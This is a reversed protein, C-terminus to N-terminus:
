YERFVKRIKNRDKKKIFNDNRGEHGVNANKKEKRQAIIKEFEKKEDFNMLKYLAYCQGVILGTKELLELDEELININNKEIFDKPWFEYRNLYLSLLNKEDYEIDDRNSVLYRSIFRRCSVALTEKTILKFIKNEFISLIDKSQKEDIPMKYEKRLNKIIPNDDEEDEKKDNNKKFNFFCLLELYIYVEMLEEFKITLRPEQFFERCEKSLNVYGPLDNIITKIEETEIQREKILYYILLQISFLIKQLEDNNENLKDKIIDYILKKKDESLEKQSYKNIFDSLISSKNGRFGEFCYTVYRLNEVGNFKVKGPLLLEGLTKEISDFDYVYQKYNMYNISNDERLINRRSNEYIIETFIDNVEDFDLTDNKKANQVDIKKEMNKVYHHLIGSQKLSEILKDLFINQWEIFNQYAAALYMGNCLEGNDVLFHTLTSNDDLDLVPMEERCGFKIEYSKLEEWDGLFNELKEKFNEDKYLEEDKIKKESAYKRTVQYSYYDIMYNCFNNFEPLYKILFKERNKDNIYEAVLPYNKEFLNARKTEDIFSKKSPYTTMLFYKYFPYDKEDYNNVDNNELVLAKMSERDLKLAEENIENYKKSYAEYEKYTEELLKEIEEEFKERQELSEIKKCSNLKETLKKFILNMFIQIIQIGKSQLAEKLLTWDTEIMQICTMEDCIYKKIDDNSIYDLCNAYFLHSYLIFNLLRFGVISLKRVTHNFQKFIAKKPKNIGFKSQRLIPEIIKNKYENILMNKINESSDYAGFQEERVKEDKFIRYHGERQVFGHRGKMGEPLPAYGIEKKCFLCNSKQLPFGCPEIAYYTGCSCVYAGVNPPQTNIHKEILAYGTIFRNNLINNGPICNANIIKDIDKSIIGSYLSDGSNKCNTTQLCFRLSYLLIEFTNTNFDQINEEKKIKTEMIDNFSDKSSYLLFLKRTIEPIKLTPQFISKAFSSYKTYEPSDGVYNKLALNSIILNTSIIYFSDLGDKEVLEKFEKINREFNSRRYADFKEFDELFKQYIKEDGYPIMYYSLMAIKEEEFRKELDKFFKIGHNDYNYNKFTQFDNNLIYFFIKFVYIKIMQRVKSNRSNGEIVKIIPDIDGILQNNLKNDIFHVLKFLYMKIYAICYFQCLLENGIKEEKKNDYKSNYIVELLNACQRFIDLSKDFLILTENVKGNNEEYNFYMPFASKDDENSLNPISEFYKNFLNEFTSLIIDHVIENKSDNILKLSYNESNQLNELNNEIKSVSPKVVGKIIISIFPYSHAILKPNQLITEVLAYRYNDYSQKKIEAVFLDLILEIFNDTDGLNEYLFDYLSKINKSLEDLKEADNSYEIQKKLIEIVKLINEPNSKNANNLRKEIDLIQQITFIGKSYINLEETLNLGDKCITKLINIFDYFQQGEKKYLNSDNIIITFLSELIFYFPKLYVQSHEPCKKGDIDFKIVGKNLLKEIEEFLNSEFSSLARYISLLSAINQSYSEIWILKMIFSKFPDFKDEENLSEYRLIVMKKLVKNYEEINKYSDKIDNVIKSLFILYYDNLLLENFENFEKKHEKSLDNLEKFIPNKGIEIETCKQYNRLENEYEQRKIPFDIDDQKLYFKIRRETEFFNDQIEEHIYHRFSKILPYIGPLKLGLLISLKNENKNKKINTKSIDLKGLYLEILKKVIENGLYYNYNDNEKLNNEDNRNDLNMEEEVEIIQNKIIKANLCSQNYIFTSLFNDNETKFILKALGDTFLTSLHRQIVSIIGVDNKKFDIKKLIEEFIDLKGLNQKLICNIIQLRLEENRELFTILKNAYNSTNIGKVSILFNYDFYSMADYFNKIFETDLKLCKKLLNEPNLDIIDILSFDEGNLHDICIQYFDSLHSISEGLTNKEIFNGKLEDKLDENFIRNMHVTFIFSKKSNEELYNKEKLYNEIFFKIYNMIDTEDPNFKIVIIKTKNERDLYISELQVELDNESNLSSIQIEKINTRDIEGFMETKFKDSINGLLPEDISTFTYIVNKLNKMSKIFNYLNSHEGRKYFEIIKNYINIYKEKFGSYKMILIIDQTLTLSLKELIIDQIDQVKLFKKKDLNQYEIDKIYIMGQIEEKDCNILQRKLDYKISLKNEKIDSRGLEQIISYINETEQLLEKRLLIEFSIIHKEFRNLFPPEEEEIMNKDVIVICKFGDHVLSFTNNTSGMAIRSYKKGSVITFNQNFLDYLSPYVSELDNLLLIKDQEMQLQIKNLIKLGYSESLQDKRFGSGIYFSLEKKLDKKMEESTLISNILYNSVSSKSILLLFRSDNDKINERIKEIVNYNGETDCNPYKEKFLTKIIKLSSKGDDFELGSFNREISNIGISEKVHEDIQNDQESLTKSLLQKMAIKILHYFDRSGHYEQKASYDKKLIKKYEYYLNALAEFLDSNTQALHPNYSEAIIQSTKNLDELDPQPISLFLGRNMKSADLCWNSIGVFAIKKNGENLDYELEAHIVKLPNNPSNEALGMEDFYIMSIIKDKNEDNLILRAKKFINLVGKSTSVKSGQYSNIYLQPLSKFLTNNSATGTMSKYLLQVSLSKSCGPKGVIFLPIKSNVCVFLTFINNLLAKNKAIGKEMEINDAIYKQERNPINEFDFDDYNNNQFVKSMIKSFEERNEKKTLRMYYCLYLSINISYLYIDMDTLDKYYTDVANYKENQNVKSDLDKKKFLYEVFFNYFIGFRRIERLSVSSVDKKVKRVYQQGEIITDSALKKLNECKEFENKPLYDGINLKDLKENQHKKEIEKWFYSEIPSVVMNRIYSKEDEATIDGFNFVFNLLSFPLPNVTYVLKSNQKKENKEDLVELANQEEDTKDAYRYPNCAGIFFINNPLPKGQCSKKTMMECILGMSNCTNIEDLFVWFKKKFYILGREEYEKRNSEEKEELIKAKAIISSDKIEVNDKKKNDYLFHVIEDDTVGAHINLIEMNSVGNNMLEYLKRILSTKGCGTEGMMIIPINARIRLLILVMKVFNDATFVYDGVIEEISKIEPKNPDKNENLIPNNINLIQKVEEWFSKHKLLNYNKLEKPIEERKASGNEINLQNQIMIPIKRIELLNSYEKTNPKDNTIISFDQGNGEHFFVLAPNIERCTIKKGKKTPDSLVEVAKENQAMENYKGQKITINYASSQSNLLSDFAGQTFHITNKIFSNVMAVRLQKLNKGKLSKFMNECQILFAASLQFNMSFKRLQGSLVDIFSNIQYYSPFKIGIYEKILSYCEKVSLPKAEEFIDQPVYNMNILQGLDKASLSVGKIIIDKDSLKKEKLFKLYNCVIQINSNIAPSVILEPLNEITMKKKNKFMSLIPFKLFFNIFGCPLEIIIEVKKSLYFLNEKQGYLKTVLFCYLFDKMLDTQKSDYLDLHIVANEEDIINIESLRKIIDKRTFEGGFPFHKYVKKKEKEVMLKISTSKGVGPRDSFIIQVNEDYLKTEFPKSNKRELIKHGIIGELYKVISEGKKSYAFVLCSNM